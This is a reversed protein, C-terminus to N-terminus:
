GSFHASDPGFVVGHKLRLREEGFCEGRERTEGDTIDEGLLEDVVVALGVVNHTRNTQPRESEEDVSSSPMIEISEEVGFEGARLWYCDGAFNQDILRHPVGDEAEHKETVQVSDLPLRELIVRILQLSIQFSGNHAAPSNPDWSM